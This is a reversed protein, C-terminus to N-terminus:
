KENRNREIFTREYTGKFTVFQMMKVVWSVSTQLVKEPEGGCFGASALQLAM